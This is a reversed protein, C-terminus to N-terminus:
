FAIISAPKGTFTQVEDEFIKMQCSVGSPQRFTLNRRAKSSSATASRSTKVRSATSVGCNAAIRFRINTGGLPVSELSVNEVM